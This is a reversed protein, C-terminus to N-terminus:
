PGAPPAGRGAGAVTAYRAPPLIELGDRRARRALDLLARDKTFLLAAPASFALDLFKQDDTDRCHWPATRTENLPTALLRWAQLLAQQRAPDCRAAIPPRRLVADLEADTCASRVARLAGERLAQGLAVAGPDEFVYLDLWANTDIVALAM